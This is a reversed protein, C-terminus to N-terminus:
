LRGLNRIGGVRCRGDIIWRYEASETIDALVNKAQRPSEIPVHLEGLIKQNRFAPPQLEAGLVEIDQVMGVERGFADAGAGHVGGVLDAGKVLQVAIGGKTGEAGPLSAVRTDRLQRYLNEELVWLLRVLRAGKELFAGANQPILM